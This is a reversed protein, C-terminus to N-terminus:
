ASLWKGDCAGGRGGCRKRHMQIHTGRQRQSMAYRAPLRPPVSQQQVRLDIYSETISFPKIMAVIRASYM